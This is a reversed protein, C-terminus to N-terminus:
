PGTKLGGIYYPVTKLLVWFLPGLKSLNIDTFRWTWTESISRDPALDPLPSLPRLIYLKLWAVRLMGGEGGGWM